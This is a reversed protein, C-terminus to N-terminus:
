ESNKSKECYQSSMRKTTTWTEPGGYHQLQRVAMLGILVVPVLLYWFAGNLSNSLNWLELAHAM